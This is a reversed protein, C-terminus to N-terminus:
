ITKAEAGVDQANQNRSWFLKTKFFFLANNAYSARVPVWTEPEPAVM